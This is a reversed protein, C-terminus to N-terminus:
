LEIEHKNLFSIFDIPLSKKYDIGRNAMKDAQTNETRLVHLVEAGM